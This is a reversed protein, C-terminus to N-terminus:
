RTGEKVPPTPKSVQAKPKSAPTAPKRAPLGSDNLRDSLMRDLLHILRDYSNQLTEIKTEDMRLDLKTQALQSQLELNKTKLDDNDRLSSQLNEVNLKLEMLSENLCNQGDELEKVITANDREITYVGHPPFPCNGYLGFDNQACGIAPLFVFVSSLLITALIKM